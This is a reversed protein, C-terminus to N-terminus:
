TRSLSWLRKKLKHIKETYSRCCIRRRITTIIPLHDWGVSSFSREWSTRSALSALVIHVRISQLNTIFKTIWKLACITVMTKIIFNSDSIIESIVSGRDNVKNDLNWIGPHTTRTSIAWSVYMKCIRRRDPIKIEAKYKRNQIGSYIRFCFDAQQNHKHNFSRNNRNSSM